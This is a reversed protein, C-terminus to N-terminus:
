TDLTNPHFMEEPIFRKSTFGQRHAFELMKDVEPRSEKFGWVYFDRGAVKREEEWLARFWL